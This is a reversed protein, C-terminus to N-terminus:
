PASGFTSRSSIRPPPCPHLILAVRSAAAVTRATIDSSGGPTFPVVITVPREPYQQALAAAPLLLAAALAAIRKMTM